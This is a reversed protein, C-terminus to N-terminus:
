PKSGHSAIPQSLSSASPARLKPLGMTLFVARQDDAIGSLAWAALIREVYDRTEKHPLAEIRFAPPLKGIKAKWSTCRNSKAAYYACLAWPIDQDFQTLLSSFHAAAEMAFSATQQVSRLSGGPSHTNDYFRPEQRAMSIWLDPDIRHARASAIINQTFAPEYARPDYDRGLFAAIRMSHAGIARAREGLCPRANADSRSLVDMWALSAEPWVGHNWLELALTAAMDDCRVTPTRVAISSSLPTAPAASGFVVRAELHTFSTPLGSFTPPSGRALALLTEWRPDEPAGAALTKWYPIAKSLGDTWLACRAANAQGEDTLRSADPLDRAAPCTMGELATTLQRSLVERSTLPFTADWSPNSELRSWANFGARAFAARESGFSSLSSLASLKGMRAFAAGYADSAEALSREAAKSCLTFGSGSALLSIADPITAPTPSSLAAACRGSAGLESPPISALESRALDFLGSHAHKSAAEELLRWRM